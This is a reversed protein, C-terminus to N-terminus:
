PHVARGFCYLQTATRIYIKGDAIAPTAFIPEGLENKALVQFDKGAALVAVNGNQGAIYIKGAAAVPSAYFDGLIGVRQELWAAEGTKGDFCSAMGGSKITYLRGEYFLPSPVYPLGRTKKWAVHTATIDGHGGPR